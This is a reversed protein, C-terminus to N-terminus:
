ALDLFMRELHLHLVPAVIPTYHAKLVVLERGVNGAADALLYYGDCLIALTVSDVPEADAIEAIQQPLCLFQYPLNISFGNSVDRVSSSAITAFSSFPSRGSSSLRSRKSFPMFSERSHRSRSALASRRMSIRRFSVSPLREAFSIGGSLM